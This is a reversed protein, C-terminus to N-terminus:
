ASPQVRRSSPPLTGNRVDRYRNLAGDIAHLMEGADAFRLEEDFNLARMIISDLESLLSVSAPSLNLDPRRLLAQSPPELQMHFLPNRILERTESPSGAQFPGRGALLEYLLVGLAFVDRGFGAPSGDKWSEPPMYEPSGSVYNHREGRFLGLGFDFIRVRGGFCMFNEMKVDCHVVEQRHLAAVQGVANRGIELVEQVGTDSKLRHILDHRLDGLDMGPLHEMVMCLKGQWQGLRLPRPGTGDELGQLFGFEQRLLCDMFAQTSVGETGEAVKITVMGGSHHDYAIFTKSCGGEALPEVYQYDQSIEVPQAGRGHFRAPLSNVLAEVSPQLITRSITGSTGAYRSVEQDLRAFASRVHAQETLDMGLAGPAGLNSRLESIVPQLAALSVQPAEVTRLLSTLGPIAAASNLFLPNM